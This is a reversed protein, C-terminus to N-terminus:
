EGGSRGSSDDPRAPIVQSTVAGSASSGSRSAPGNVAGALAPSASPEAPPRGASVRVFVAGGSLSGSYRPVLSEPFAISYVLANVQRNVARALRAFMDTFARPPNEAVAALQTRASEVISSAVAPACRLTIRAHEADIFAYTGATFLVAVMLAVIKHLIDMSPTLAHIPVRVHGAGLLPESSVINHAGVKGGRRALWRKTRTHEEATHPARRRKHPARRAISRPRVRSSRLIRPSKKRQLDATRCATSMGGRKRWIRAAGRGRTTRISLSVRSRTTAWMGSEGSGEERSSARRACVRSMTAPSVSFPHPRVPLSTGSGM